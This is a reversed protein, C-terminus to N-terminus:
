RRTLVERGRDGTGSNYVAWEGELRGNGTARYSIIGFWGQELNAYSAHLEQTRPDYFGVASFRQGGLDWDIECVDAGRDRIVVDARYSPPSDVGEGPNWGRAEYQGVPCMALAPTALLLSAAAAAAFRLRVTM